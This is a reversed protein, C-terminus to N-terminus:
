AAIKPPMALTHDGDEEVRKAIEGLLNNPSKVVLISGPSEIWSVRHTTGPPVILLDNPSLTYQKQKYGRATEMRLVGHNVVYLEFHHAHTHRSERASHNALGVFFPM